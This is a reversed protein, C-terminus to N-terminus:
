LAFLPVGCVALRRLAPTGNGSLDNSAAAEHFPTQAATIRAGLAFRAKVHPLRDVLTLYPPPSTLLRM